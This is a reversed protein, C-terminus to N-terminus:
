HSPGQPPTPPPNTKGGGPNGMPMEGCPGGGGAGRHMGGMHHGGEGRQARCSELAQHQQPTIISEMQQRAQEHIQRIQQQKQQPSLSSNACVAEVQSRTNQQIQREQQMASQSIGAQKWCPPGGRRGMGGQGQGAPPMSGPPMTQALLSSVSLVFLFAVALSVSKMRM